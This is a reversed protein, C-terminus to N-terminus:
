DILNIRENVYNVIENPEDCSFILVQDNFRVLVKQASNTVFMQYNGLQANRFKGLYGFAGGSGFTRISNKTDSSRHVRIEEIDEIPIIIDRYIRNIRIFENEVSVNLPTFLAPIFLIGLLLPIAVINVWVFFTRKQKRFLIITRFVGVIAALLIICYIITIIIATNDWSCYFTM